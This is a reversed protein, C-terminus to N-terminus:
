DLYLFENLNLALLCFNKVAEDRSQGHEAQLSGILSLGRAVEEDRPPRQLTRELAARVLSPLDNGASKGLHEAFLRAQENLFESNLMGLAQTPQTTAFRAPCTFDAEAVDFAALLPVPLSRKIHIYISRRTRDEPRSTHWNHGPMSQGALVEQPILPYISPGYMRDLKLSGNVALISDRIEEARLRRVDYRWFLENLPDQALAREERSSAMRWTNSLLILKHMEKLSWGRHIFEAALWDLLEPHTPADGKLGFDNPSRVIGRGFHWQWLRNAMVRATLPNDPSAIWRALALRRGSSERSAPVDIRPQPPSLVAPFAPEVVEGEAGPNGRILLYTRPADSGDETVCLAQEASRPPNRRQQEWKGRTREYTDFEAQSIHEGVYKRIIRLRVSDNQFDDKEGALLHKRMREEVADLQQRLEQLHAEYKSIEQQFREKEEPTAISRVSRERVSEDSRVGYRRVNRFFALFGYYDAQSLPDLKHDHCRACNLTLGLFGQSATTIIDDLDDYLALKPDAPEDDWPGLRYFGTAILSDKTVEPLEDGALQELVFQDYPKDDNFSRIVYDRYRWVFPKPNDREFSNSEAYRVLDLWYRAWHEGYHPSELLKNVLSEYADPSDDNVFSAVQESTPPLGLLNYYLRRVLTARSAPPNPKLGAAQLRSYVFADIPNTGWGPDTVPPVEPRQLPRFSWHNKTQANVQPSGEHIEKVDTRQPMPAGLTLWKAIVEIQAQPLKGDPPMEYSVYNLADLMLGKTPENLDVIPGSDGGRLLQERSYFTLGGKNQGNGHCKYCHMKLIPEVERTFFELGAPSDAGHIIDGGALCSVMIGFCVATIPRRMM